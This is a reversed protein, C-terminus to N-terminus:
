LVNHPNGSHPGDNGECGLYIDLVIGTILFKPSLTVDARKQM